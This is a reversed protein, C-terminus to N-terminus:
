AKKKVTRTNKKETMKKATKKAMSKKSLAIFDIVDEKNNGSKLILPKSAYSKAKKELWIRMAEEYDDHYKEPEWQYPRGEDYADFHWHDFTRKPAVMRKAGYEIEHANDFGIIRRGHQEHLSLSYRVGNSRVSLSTISVEFKVWLGLKEDIVM